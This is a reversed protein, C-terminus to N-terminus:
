LHLPLVSAVLGPDNQWIEPAADVYMEILIGDPDRVYVSQSVVHDRTFAFAIGLARLHSAHGHLQDLRDGIRFVVHALGLGEPLFGEPLAGPGLPVERLALDHHSEGFSCFVMPADVIAEEAEGLRGVESLGLMSAYFPVSRALSSVNLVVHGLKKIAAAPMSLGAQHKGRHDLQAM